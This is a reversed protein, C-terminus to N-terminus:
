SGQATFLNAIVTNRPTSMFAIPDPAPTQPQFKPKKGWDAEMREIYYLEELCLVWRCTM